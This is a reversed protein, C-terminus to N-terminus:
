DDGNVQKTGIFKMRGPFIPKTRPKPVLRIVNSQKETGGGAALTKDAERKLDTM